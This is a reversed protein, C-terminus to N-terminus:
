KATVKVKGKKEPSSVGLNALIKELEKPKDKLLQRYSGIGVERSCFVTPLWHDKKYGGSPPNKAIPLKPILGGDVIYVFIQCPVQIVDHRSLLNILAASLEDSLGVATILHPEPELVHDGSGFERSLEASSVHERSKIFDIIKQELEEIGPFDKKDVM